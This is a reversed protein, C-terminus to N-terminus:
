AGREGRALGRRASPRRHRRRRRRRSSSCPAATARTSPPRRQRGEEQRRSRDAGGEGRAGGGEGGGDCRDPGRAGTADRRRARAVGRPARERKDSHAREALSRRSRPRADSSRWRATSSWSARASKTRPGRRRRPPQWPRSTRARRAEERARSAGVADEHRRQAEDVAASASARRRVTYEERLAAQEELFLKRQEARASDHAAAVENRQMEAVHEERRATELADLSARRASARASDAADAARTQERMEEECVAKRASEYARWSRLPEERREREAAWSAEQEAKMQQVMAERQRNTEDLYRKAAEKRATDAREAAEARSRLEAEHHARRTDQAELFSKLAQEHIQLRPTRQGSRELRRAAAAAAGSTDLIPMSPVKMPAMLVSIPQPPARSPGRERFGLICLTMTVKVGIGLEGVWCGGHLSSTVTTLSPPLSGEGGSERLVSDREQAHEGKGERGRGCGCVCPRAFGASFGGREERRRKSPLAKERTKVARARRAGAEAGRRRHRRRIHHHRVLLDRRADGSRCSRRGVTCCSSPELPLELEELDSSYTLILHLVQLALEHARLLHLPDLRHGEDDALEQLDDVVVMADDRRRRAGVVVHADEGRDVPLEELRARRHRQVPVRVRHDVDEGRLGVGGDGHEAGVLLGVDRVVVNAPAVLLLLLDRPRQAASACRGTRASRSRGAARRAGTRGALCRCSWARWATAYWVVAEKMRITPEPEHLYRPSPGRPARHRGSLVRSHTRARGGGRAGNGFGAPREARRVIGRGLGGVGMGWGRVQPARGERGRLYRHDEDVLHVRRSLRKSACVPASRSTCRM